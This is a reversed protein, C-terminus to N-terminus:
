HHHGHAGHVHGHQMEEETAERVDLIEGSFHLNLGALPHNFDMKVENETIELVIGDMPNGHNDEMTIQNGLTLLGDEINGDVVFVSKPLAIIANEDFNGYAEEPTLSFNFVNGKKLGALSNEFKPLLGGIGFLYVFPSDKEVKQILEGTADNERLEYTLSVVKKNGIEM